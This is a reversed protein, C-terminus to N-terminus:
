LDIDVAGCHSIQAGTFRDAQSVATGAYLPRLAPQHKLTQCDSDNVATKFLACM